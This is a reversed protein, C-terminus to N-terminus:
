SPADDARAGSTASRAADCADQSNGTTMPPRSPRPVEYRRSGDASVSAREDPQPVFEYVLYRKYPHAGIRKLSARIKDDHSWVPSFELKAYGRAKAKEHLRRLMYPLLSRAEAGRNTRTALYVVRASSPVDSRRLWRVLKWLWKSSLEGRLEDRAVDPLYGDRLLVRRLYKNLASRRRGQKSDADVYNPVAIVVGIASDQAKETFRMSIEPDFDPCANRVFRKVDGAAIRIWGPRGPLRENILEFMRESHEQVLFHTPGLPTDTVAGRPIEDARRESDPPLKSIWYRWADATAISRAGAQELIRSYYRPNDTSLPYLDDGFGEVQVGVRGHISWSFPGAIPKNSYGRAWAAAAELLAKAVRTSEVCEFFGFWPERVIRDDDSKQDRIHVAIRGVPFGDAYAVFFQHDWQSNPISPPSALLAREEFLREQQLRSDERGLYHHIGVFDRRVTGNLGAEIRVSRDEWGDISESCNLFALRRQIFHVDASHGQVFARTGFAALCVYGGAIIAVVYNGHIASTSTVAIFGFLNAVIFVLTALNWPEWDGRFALKRNALWDNKSEDARRDGALQDRLKNIFESVDKVTKYSVYGWAIVGVFLTADWWIDQAPKTDTQAAGVPARALAHAISTVLDAFWAFVPQFVDALVSMISALQTM